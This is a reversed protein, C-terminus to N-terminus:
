AAGIRTFIKFRCPPEKEEILLGFHKFPVFPLGFIPGNSKYSKKTFTFCIPNYVAKFNETEKM